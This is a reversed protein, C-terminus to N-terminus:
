AGARLCRRGRGRAACATGGARLRAREAGGVATRVPKGDLTDIGPWLRCRRRGAGGDPRRHASARGPAGAYARDVAPRGAAHVAQAGRQRLPSRPRRGAGRVLLAVDSRWASTSSSAAPEVVQYFTEGPKILGLESRARSEVAQGNHKLDKVDAELAQNRRKLKANERQQAAVSARLAHVERMGDEGIWLKWQLILLLAILLLAIWRLMAAARAGADARCPRCTRSRTADPTARRTM